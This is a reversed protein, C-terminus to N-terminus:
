VRKQVAFAGRTGNGLYYIRYASVARFKHLKGIICQDAQPRRLRADPDHGFHQIIRLYHAVFDGIEELERRLRCGRQFYFDKGGFVIRRNGPCLNHREGIKRLECTNLADCVGFAFHAEFAARGTQFCFVHENIWFQVKPASQLFIGRKGIATNQFDLGNVQVVLVAHPIKVTLGIQFGSRAHFHTHNIRADPWARIHHHRASQIRHGAFIGAIETIRVDVARVHRADNRSAARRTANRRAYRQLGIAYKAFIGCSGGIKGDDFGDAM